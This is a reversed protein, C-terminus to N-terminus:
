HFQNIPLTQLHPYALRRKYLKIAEICLAFIDYVYAIDRCVVTSTIQRNRVILETHIGTSLTSAMAIETITFHNQIIIENSLHKIM